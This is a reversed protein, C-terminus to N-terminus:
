RQRFEPPRRTAVSRVLRCMSRDVVFGGIELHMLSPDLRLLMVDYQTALAGVTHWGDAGVYFGGWGLKDRYQALWGRGADNVAQVYSEQHRERSGVHGDDYGLGFAAVSRQVPAPNNLANAINFINLLAVILAGGRSISQGEDPGDLSIGMAAQARDGDNRPRSFDMTVRNGAADGITFAVFGGGGLDWVEGSANHLATYGGRAFNYYDM